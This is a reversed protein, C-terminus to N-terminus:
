SQNQLARGRTLTYATGIRARLITCALIMLAASTALVISSPEPINSSQFSATRIIEDGPDPTDFFFETLDALATGDGVVIEGDPLISEYSVAFKGFSQGSPGGVPLLSGIASTPGFADDPSLLGFVQVVGVIM